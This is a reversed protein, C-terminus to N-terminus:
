KIGALTKWREITKSEKLTKGEEYGVAQKMFPQSSKLGGSRIREKSRAIHATRRKAANAASKDRDAQTRRQGLDVVEGGKTEPAEEEAAKVRVKQLLDNLLGRSHKKQFVRAMREVKGAEVKDRTALREWAKLIQTKKATLYNSDAIKGVASQRDRERLLREPLFPGFFNLFSNLDDEFKMKSGRVQKGRNVNKWSGRLKNTNFDDSLYYVKGEGPDAEEEAEGEADEAGEEGPEGEAGAPAIDEAGEPPAEGPATGLMASLDRLPEIYKDGLKKLEEMGPKDAVKDYLELAKNVGEQVDEVSAEIGAAELANIIADKAGQAGRVKDMAKVLPILKLVLPGFKGAKAAIKGFPILSFLALAASKLDGQAINILSEAISAPINAGPVLSLVSALGEVAKVAPTNALDQVKDIVSEDEGDTDTTGEPDIAPEEVGTGIDWGGERLQTKCCDYIAQAVEQDAFIKFIGSFDVAHSKAPKSDSGKVKRGKRPSKEPTTVGAIYERITSDADMQKIIGASVSQKVMYDRLEKYKEPAIQYENKIASLFYALTYGPNSPKPKFKIKSCDGVVADPYEEVDVPTPAQTGDEPEEEQGPTGGQPQPQQPEQPAQPEQPKQPEQQKPKSKKFWNPLDNGEKGFFGARALIKYLHDKTKQTTLAANFVKALNPYKNVDLEGNPGLKPMRSLIVSAKHISQEEITYNNGQPNTILDELENYLVDRKVEVNLIRRIDDIAKYLAAVDDANYTEPENGAGEEEGDGGACKDGPKCVLDGTYQHKDYSLGHKGGTKGWKLKGFFEDLPVDEKIKPEVSEALFGKWADSRKKADKFSSWDSM